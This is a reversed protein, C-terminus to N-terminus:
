LGGYFDIFLVKGKVHIIVVIFYEHAFSLRYLEIQILGNESQFLGFLQEILFLLVTDDTIVFQPFTWFVM